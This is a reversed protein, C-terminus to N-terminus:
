ATATENDGGRAQAIGASAPLKEITVTGVLGGDLRITSRSGEWRGSDAYTSLLYFLARGLQYMTFVRRPSGPQLVTVQIQAHGDLSVIRAIGIDDSRPCASDSDRNCLRRIVEYCLLCIMRRPIAIGTFSTDVTVETEALVHVLSESLAMTANASDNVAATSDLPESRPQIVIDLVGNWPAPADSRSVHARLACSWQMGDRTLYAWASRELAYAISRLDMHQAVQHPAQPVSIIYTDIHFMQDAWRVNGRLIPNDAHGWINIIDRIIHGLVKAGDLPYQPHEYLRLDFPFLPPYLAPNLITNM